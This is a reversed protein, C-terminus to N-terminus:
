AQAGVTERPLEQEADITIGHRDIKVIHEASIIHGQQLIGSIYIKDLIALDLNILTDYVKGITTGGQIKVNAGVVKIKSELVKKFRVIEEVPVLAEANKIVVGQKDYEHIDAVSLALTRSLFKEPKVLFGLLAGDTPEFIIQTIIGVKKNDEQSAVPLGILQSSRWFM